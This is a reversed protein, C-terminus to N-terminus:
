INVNDKCRKTCFFETEPKLAYGRLVVQIKVPLCKIM